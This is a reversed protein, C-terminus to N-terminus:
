AAVNWGAPMLKAEILDDAAAFLDPRSNRAQLETSAHVTWVAGSNPRADIANM